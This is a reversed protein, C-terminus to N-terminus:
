VWLWTKMGEYCPALCSEMGEGLRIKWRRIRRDEPLQGADEFDEGAGEEVFGALGAFDVADAALLVEALGILTEVLVTRGGKSDEGVSDAFHVRLAVLFGVERSGDLATRSEEVRGLATEDM